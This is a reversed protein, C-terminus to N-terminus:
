RPSGGAPAPPAVILLTFAELEFHTGPGTSADTVRLTLPFRGPAATPTGSIVGGASLQLGKPLGPGAEVAFRHPALGGRAKLALSFPQGQTATARTPTIAMPAAGVSGGFSRRSSEGGADAV